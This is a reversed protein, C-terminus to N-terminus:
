KASDTLQYERRRDYCDQIGRDSWLSKIAHVFNPEFTTVNEYDVSRILEAHEQFDFLTLQLDFCKSFLPSTLAIDVM